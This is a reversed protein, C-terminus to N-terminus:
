VSSAAGCCRKYKRGSDCPCPANRGIKARGFLSLKAKPGPRSGLNFVRGIQGAIPAASTANSQEQPKAPVNAEPKPTEPSTPSPKASGVVEAGEQLTPSPKTSGVVEPETAGGGTRVNPRAPRGFGRSRGLHSLVFCIAWPKKDKVARRLMTEADVLSEVVQELEAQLRPCSSVIAKLYIRKM